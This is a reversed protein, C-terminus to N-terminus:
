REKGLEEETPFPKVVAWNAALEVKETRTADVQVFQHDEWYHKCLTAVFSPQGFLLVLEVYLLVQDQMLGPKHVMM